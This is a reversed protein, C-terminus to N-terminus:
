PTAIDKWTGDAKDLYELGSKDEKLRVGFGIPANEPGCCPDFHAVGLYTLTKKLWTTFSFLKTFYSPNKDTSEVLLGKQIFLHKM